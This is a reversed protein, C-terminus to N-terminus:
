IFYCFIGFLVMIYSKFMKQLNWTHPYDHGQFIGPVFRGPSPLTWAHHHDQFKLLSMPGCSHGLIDLFVVFHSMVWCVLLLQQGVPDQHSTRSAPYYDQEYKEEPGVTDSFVVRCLTSGSALVKEQSLGWRFNTPLSTGHLGEPPVGFRLHEKPTNDLCIPPGSYDAEAREAILANLSSFIPLLSVLLHLACLINLYNMQFSIKLELTLSTIIVFM